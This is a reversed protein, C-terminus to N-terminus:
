KSSLARPVSELVVKAPSATAVKEKFSKRAHNCRRSCFKCLGGEHATKEAVEMEIRLCIKMSLSFVCTGTCGTVSVVASIAPRSLQSCAALPTVSGASSRSIPTEAFRALSRPPWVSCGGNGFSERVERSRTIPSESAPSRAERAASFLRRWQQLDGLNAVQM